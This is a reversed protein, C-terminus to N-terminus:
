RLLTAFCESSLGCVKQRFVPRAIASAGGVLRERMGVANTVMDPAGSACRPAFLLRMSTNLDAFVHGLSAFIAV